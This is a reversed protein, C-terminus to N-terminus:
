VGLFARLVVLLLVTVTFSLDIPCERVFRFRMLVRRVPWIIVDTVTYIFVLFKNTPIPFIWSLIARILFLSMLLNFLLTLTTGFVFGLYGM